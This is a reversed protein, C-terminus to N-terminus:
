AVTRCRSQQLARQAQGPDTEIRVICDKEVCITANRLVSFDPELCACDRILLDYHDM